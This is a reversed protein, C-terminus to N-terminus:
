VCVGCVYVDGGWGRGEANACACVHELVCICVDVCVCVVRVYFSLVYDGKRWCVCVTGAAPEPRCRQSAQSSLQATGYSEEACHATLQGVVREGGHSVPGTTAPVGAACLCEGTIIPNM